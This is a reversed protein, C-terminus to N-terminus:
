ARASRAAALVQAHRRARRESRAADLQELHRAAAVDGPVAGALQDAVQDGVEGRAARGVDVGPQAADLGRQDLREAFEADRRAADVAHGAHEELLVVRAARARLIADIPTPSRPQILQCPKASFTVVAGPAKASM